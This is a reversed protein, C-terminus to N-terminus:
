RSSDNQFSLVIHDVVFMFFSNLFDYSLQYEIKKDCVLSHLCFLFSDFLPSASQKEDGNENVFDNDDNSSLWYYSTSIDRLITNEAEDSDSEDDSIREEDSCSDYKSENDVEDECESETDDSSEYDPDVRKDSIYRLKLFPKRLNISSLVFNLDEPSLISSSKYDALILCSQWIDRIGSLILSCTKSFNKSSLMEVNLGCSEVIMRVFKEVVAINEM